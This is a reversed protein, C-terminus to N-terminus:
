AYVNAKFDGFFVRADAGDTWDSVSVASRVEADAAFSWRMCGTELDLAYMRGHQSGVFVSGAAVMPQSRARTAGPYAFAWKLKLRPVDAATLGAIEAPIFRTSAFTFGWGNVAPPDTR